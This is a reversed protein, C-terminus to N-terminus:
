SSSANNQEKHFEVDEVLGSNVLATQLLASAMPDDFRSKNAAEAITKLSQAISELAEVQRQEM